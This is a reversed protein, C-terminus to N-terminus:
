LNHIIALFHKVTSSVKDINRNLFLVELFSYFNNCGKIYCINYVFYACLLIVPYADDKVEGIVRCDVVLFVQNPDNLCGTALLYPQPQRRDDIIPQLNTAGQLIVNILCLWIFDPQCSTYVNIIIIHFASTYPLASTYFYEISLALCLSVAYNVCYNCGHMCTVVSSMDLQPFGLIFFILIIAKLLVDKTYIIPSKFLFNYM